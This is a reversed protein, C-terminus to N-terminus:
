LEDKTISSEQEVDTQEVGIEKGKRENLQKEILHKQKEFTTGAGIHEGLDDDDDDEGVADATVADDRNLDAM